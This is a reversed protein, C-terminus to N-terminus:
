SGNRDPGPSAVHDPGEPDPGLAAAEGARIQAGYSSLRRRTVAAIYAAPLYGLQEQVAPQEYYCFVVLAKLRQLSAALGGRRRALVARFYAEAVADPLRVFRRGRSRPYLRAGLDFAVLGGSVLRRVGAPLAGVLLEFEGLLGGMVDGAPVQPPCAVEALRVVVRRVNPRLRWAPVEAPEAATTM